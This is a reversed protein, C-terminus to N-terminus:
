HGAARKLLRHAEHKVPSDEPESEGIKRLYTLTHPKKLPLLSLALARTTLDPDALLQEISPELLV